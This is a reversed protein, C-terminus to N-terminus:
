RTGVPPVESGSEEVNSDQFVQPSLLDRAREEWHRQNKKIQRTNDAVVADAEGYSPPNAHPDYGLVQLMPALEAMDRVVDDPIQGVWKTLAELNVPKIVQDSSREM